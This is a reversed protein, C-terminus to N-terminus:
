KHYRKEVEKWNVVNWRNEIYAGRDSQYQLYYAHEWVDLGLLPTLWWSLPNDQNATSIIDLDSDSNKVLWAWGSWFRWAATNSFTEKFINLGGFNQGLIKKFDGSIEKGWPAMNEWFLKHNYYGWGNNRVSAKIWEAINEINQIIWEISKEELDTWEIAINFKKTYWAHHKQHHVKMIEESIFPELADYAYPLKPLDFMSFQSYCFLFLFICNRSVVISNNYNKEFSIEEIKVNNEVFM